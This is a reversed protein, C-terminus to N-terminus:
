PAARHALRARAEDATIAGAAGADVAGLGYGMPSSRGTVFGVRDGALWRDDHLHHFWLQRVQPRQEDLFRLLCGPDDFHLVEGDATVLQAAYAPDGVLMRCHACPQRNWAVPVPSDPAAGGRAVVGVLAAVAAAAGGVVLARRRM